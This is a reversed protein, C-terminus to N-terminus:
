EFRIFKNDLTLLLKNQSFWSIFEDFKKTNNSYWNHFEKDNGKMLLWYNYCEFYGKENLIKQWDFLINPYELNHKESYYSNIFKTRITNLSSLTITDNGLISLSILPEYVKLGFPIKEGPKTNLDSYFSVSFHNKDVFKIESKYKEFLLKSIEETRASGRDINLFLEGYLMGWMENKTSNLYYKTAIYYNSPYNPDVSIGKEYYKLSEKKDTQINGREYYFKGSNPFKKLGKNYSKLANEKDGSLDYVNGLMQYYQDTAEKYKVVKRYTKIANPYDRKLNYAFGLEYPYNFNTPDLKISKKLLEISQDVKGFDILEIAKQALEFAEKEKDEKKQGLSVSSIFLSIILIYNKM